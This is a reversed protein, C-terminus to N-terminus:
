TFVTESPSYNLKKDGYFLELYYNYVGFEDTEDLLNVEGNKEEVNIEDVEGTFLNQRFLKSQYPKISKYSINITNSKITNNVAFDFLDFDFYPSYEKPANNSDFYAKKVCEEPTFMNSLYLKHENQLAYSDIDLSIIGDPPLFEEKKSNLARYIYASLLAPYNGGTTNVATDLTNDLSGYWVCMTVSPTYSMCWADLNNKSNPYTNTGTKGAVALDLESLKRATGDKTTQCLMDTVLYATEESIVNLNYNPM